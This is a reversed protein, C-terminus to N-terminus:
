KKKPKRTQAKNPKNKSAIEHKMSEFLAIDKANVLAQEESKKREAAMKIAQEKLLNHMKISDAYYGANGLCVHSYVLTQTDCDSGKVHVILITGITPVNDKFDPMMRLTLDSRLGKFAEIARTGAEIAREVTDAFQGPLPVDMTWNAATVVLTPYEAEQAIEKSITAGM